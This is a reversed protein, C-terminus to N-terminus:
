RRRRRDSSEARAKRPPAPPPEGFVAPQVLAATDVQEAKVIFRKPAKGVYQFPYCTILTVERRARPELVEVDEPTVIETSRVAYEYTGETTTLIIRDDKRVDRLGRFFSDRHAALAVSGDEGPLATGPVHGAARRLTKADVGERVVAAVNLRPIEIRGILGNPLPRPKPAAPPPAIRPLDHYADAEDGSTDSLSQWLSAIYGTWTAREGKLASELAYDEYSSYVFGDVWAWAWVFVCILGTALLVYELRRLGRSSRRRRSTFISDM